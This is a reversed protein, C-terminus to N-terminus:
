PTSAVSGPSADIGGCSALASHLDCASSRGSRMQMTGCGARRGRCESVEASAAQRCVRASSPLQESGGAGMCASPPWYQIGTGSSSPAQHALQALVPQRQKGSLTCTTCLLAWGAENQAGAHQWAARGHRSVTCFGMCLLGPLKPPERSCQKPAQVSHRLIADTRRSRTIESSCVVVTGEPGKEVGSVRAHNWSSNWHPTKMSAQGPLSTAAKVTRCRTTYAHMSNCCGLTASIRAVTGPTRGGTGTPYGENKLRIDPTSKAQAFSGAPCARSCALRDCQRQVHRRSPRM